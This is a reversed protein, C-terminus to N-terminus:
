LEIVVIMGENKTRGDVRKPLRGLGEININDDM